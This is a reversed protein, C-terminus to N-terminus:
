ATEGFNPERKRDAVVWENTNALFAARVELGTAVAYIEYPEVGELTELRMETDSERWYGGTLKTFPVGPEDPYWHQPAGYLDRLHGEWDDRTQEHSRLITRVNGDSDGVMAADHNFALLIEM